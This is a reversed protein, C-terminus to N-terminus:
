PVEALARHGAEVFALAVEGDIGPLDAVRGRGPEMLRLLRRRLEAPYPTQRYALLTLETGGGPAPAFQVVAADVADASTGSMLGLGTFPARPPVLRHARMLAAGDPAM